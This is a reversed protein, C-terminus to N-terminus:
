RMAHQVVALPASKGWPRQRALREQDLQKAASTHLHSAPASKVTRPGHAVSPLPAHVKRLLLTEMGNLRPQISESQATRLRHEAPALAQGALSLHVDRRQAAEWAPSIVSGVTVRGQALAIGVRLFQPSPPAAGGTSTADHGAESAPLLATNLTFAVARDCFGLSVIILALVVKRWVITQLLGSLGQQKEILMATEGHNDKKECSFCRLAAEVHPLICQVSKVDHMTRIHERLRVLVERGWAVNGHEIEYMALHFATANDQANGFDPFARM